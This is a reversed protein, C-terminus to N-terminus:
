TRIGSRRRLWTKLANIKISYAGSNREILHYGLLHRTIEYKVNEIPKGVALSELFLEEDPFHTHLLETIQEFKDSKDRIFAPIEETVMVKSVNLPRQLHKQSIQSCLVRTLFPHGGCEDFITEIADHDWYVSMGKGLDRIMQTTDTKSLPPLFLPKYLSFVPNERGEWYASESIAANAAVVVSSITGKYRETQALGRLLGFFEIYGEMARQGALPLCRELEDLIIVVRNLGPLHGNSISDLLERLDESFLLAPNMGQAAADSFRSFKGLRLIEKVKPYRSGLRSLLDREIEWLVPLFSGTTFGPSAQLDVYAVAEDKLKEDRLQYILSTKGMKRLGFIGVFEGNNAQDALQVVLRERGFLRRGSVPLTSDYLDRLGLYQSFVEKMKARADIGSRMLPEDIPLVAENKESLISMLYDRVATSNPVVVFAMAANLAIDRGNILGITADTKISKLYRSFEIIDTRKPVGSFCRVLYAGSLGFSAELERDAIEVILDSIGSPLDKRGPISPRFGNIKSLFSYARGARPNSALARFRVYSIDSKNLKGAEELSDFIGAAERLSLDTAKESLVQALGWKLLTHSANAQLGTRFIREADQLNNSRREMQGYMIHLNANKPYKEIASQMVSRALKPDRGGGETLMKCYATYVEENAGAAIAQEFLSRAASYRGETRAVAALEYLKRPDESRGAEAQGQSEVIKQTEESSDRREDFSQPLGHLPDVNELGKQQGERKVINFAVLGESTASASVKVKDKIQPSYGDGLSDQEFFIRKNNRTLAQGMKKQPDYEVVMAPGCYDFKKQTM